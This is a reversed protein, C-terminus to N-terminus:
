ASPRLMKLARPVGSRPVLRVPIGAGDLVSAAMASRYGSACILTTTTGRDFEDIRGPVDGVFVHRSADLHGADWESRQRV